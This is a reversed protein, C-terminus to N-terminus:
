TAALDDAAFLGARVRSRLVLVRAFEQTSFPFPAIARPRRGFRYEEDYAYDSVQSGEALSSPQNSQQSRNM